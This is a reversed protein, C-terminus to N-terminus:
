RPEEVAPPFPRNIQFGAYSIVTKEGTKETIATETVVPLKRESRDFLLRISAIQGPQLPVLTVGDPIPEVRYRKSIQEMDMSLFMRLQEGMLRAMPQRSIDASTVHGEGDYQWSVAEDGRIILGHALPTRYEWRLFGPRRFYFRGTSVLPKDAIALHREMRFDCAISDVAAFRGYDEAAFAAQASLWLFSLLLFPKM